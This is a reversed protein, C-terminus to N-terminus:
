ETVQFGHSINEHFGCLWLKSKGVKQTLARQVNYITIEMQSIKMFVVFVM